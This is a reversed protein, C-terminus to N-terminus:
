ASRSGRRLDEGLQIHSQKTTVRKEEKSTPESDQPLTLCLSPRAGAGSHGLRGALGGAGWGLVCLTPDLRRVLAWFGQVSLVRAELQARGIIRQTVQPDLEGGGSPRPKGM